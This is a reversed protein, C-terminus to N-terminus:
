IHHILISFHYWTDSSHWCDISDYVTDFHPDCGWTSIYRGEFCRLSHVTTWIWGSIHWPGFDRYLRHGDLRWYKSLFDKYNTYLGRSNSQHGDGIIHFDHSNLGLCMHNIHDELEVIILMGMRMMRLGHSRAWPTWILNRLRRLCLSDM